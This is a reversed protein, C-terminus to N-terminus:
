GTCCSHRTQVQESLVQARARHPSARAADDGAGVAGLGAEVGPVSGVGM